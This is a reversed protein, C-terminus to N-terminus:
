FQTCRCTICLPGEARWASPQCTNDSSSKMPPVPILEAETCCGRVGLAQQCLYSYRFTTPKTSKSSQYVRSSMSDSEYWKLLLAKGSSYFHNKFSCNLLQLSRKVVYVEYPRLTPHFQSLNFQAAWYFERCMRADSKSDQNWAIECVVQLRICIHCTHLWLLRHRTGEKGVASIKPAKINRHGLNM